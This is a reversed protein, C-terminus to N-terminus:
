HASANCHREAVEVREKFNESKQEWTRFAEPIERRIEHWEPCNHLRHKETGEEKHCARCESEDSWGIDYLKQQVWGGVLVLKRAVNRHKETWGEKTTKHLLALAPELWVSEKLEECERKAAWKKWYVIGAQQLLMKKVDKPCVYRMDMKRDGEFIVTHWHPWKIGPDRTECM